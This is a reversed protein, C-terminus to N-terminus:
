SMVKVLDAGDMKKWLRALHRCGAELNAEPDTLESIGYDAATTPLLQMLGVAGKPSVAEPNGASEQHIVARVLDPDLEHKRAVREILPDWRTVSAPLEEALRLGLGDPLRCLLPPMQRSSSQSEFAFRIARRTEHM